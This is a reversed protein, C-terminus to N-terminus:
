APPQSNRASPVRLRIRTYRDPVSEIALSGGVVALMTSHLALGQGSGGASAEAGDIGVGDDEITIELGDDTAVLVVALRLPRRGNGGRAYRAANRIIERAAYYAVDAALPSLESAMGQAEADADWLVHDFGNRFEVMAVHRLAGAFGLREVAQSTPAPLERLLDSVKRHLDGIMGVAERAAASGGSLELMVAHLQPLVDDHLVRRTQQDVVQSEALRRRQLEMLRRAMEAGAQMDILREGSARAIEMEEQTYLGGDLKEGLLLAGILGRESWLPIAWVAGGYRVPDVQVSLTRPSNLAALLESRDALSDPPSAPYSLVPGALAAMPGLPVLCAVRSGLVDTCLARFPVAVNTGSSGEDRGALLFEYLQQSGIFPRLHELYRDREAFSRWNLLAYFLAILVTAILLSYIPPLDLVLALSLLASYGAALVIANYWHRRFGQRPLIKGTFIEYSVVAQGLSLIACAILFSICLDFWHLALLDSMTFVPEGWEVVVRFLAWAVLVSVGILLLTTGQLWPRARVRALDGMVRGSPEVNALVHLSLIFCCIIYAPYLIVQLPVHGVFPMTSYITRPDNSSALRDIALLLVTVVLAFPIMAALARRHFRRLRGARHEWFGAFWLMAWYWAMPLAIIPVWRISWVPGLMLRFSFLTGELLLTHFIFFIGSALLSGGALWIGWARREANLLVTLGLWISIIMNFSSLAVLVWGLIADGSMWEM